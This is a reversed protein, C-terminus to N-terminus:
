RRLEDLTTVLALESLEGAVSYLLGNETWSVQSLLGEQILTLTRGDREVRRGTPTLGDASMIYISLLHGHVRYMYSAVRRGAFICLRGGILEIELDGATPPPPAFDVRQALWARVRVPDNTAVDVSRNSDIFAQLEKLPVDALQGKRLDWFLLGLSLFLVFASAAIALHRWSPTTRTRSPLERLSRALRQKMGDSPHEDAFAKRLASAIPDNARELHESM